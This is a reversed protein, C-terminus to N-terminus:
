VAGGGGGGEYEPALVTETQLIGGSSTGLDKNVNAQAGGGETATPAFSSEMLGCLFLWDM